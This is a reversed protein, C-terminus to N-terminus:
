FSLNISKRKSSEFEQGRKTEFKLESQNIFVSPTQNVNQYQYMM